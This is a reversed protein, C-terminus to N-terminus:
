PLAPPPEIPTRRSRVQSAQVRATARGESSAVVGFPDRLATVDSSGRCSSLYGVDDRVAALHNVRRMRARADHGRFAGGGVLPDDEVRDVEPLCHGAQDIPDALPAEGRTVDDNEKVGATDRVRRRHPSRFRGTRGATLRCIVLPSANGRREDAGPPALQRSRSQSAHGRSNKRCIDSNTHVDKGM